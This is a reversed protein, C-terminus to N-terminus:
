QEVKGLCQRCLNRNAFIQSLRSENSNIISGCEECTFKNEEPPKNEKAPGLGSGSAANKAITDMLEIAAAAADAEPSNGIEFIGQITEEGGPSKITRTITLTRLSM